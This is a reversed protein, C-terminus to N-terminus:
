TKGNGVSELVRLTDQACRKWTFSCARARGAEILQHRLEDDTAVRYIGDAISDVREPDVLIAADGALERPAHRNATVVPTGSAMGEVVPLGFGEYLSPLLVAEALAYFSPLTKRDIWGARVVWPSLGLREILKLEDTCLWRHEGAVVLAIGLRPGVMAYAQLLRGFNKPPYIQGCYLFFREPLRYARRTEELREPPIVERFSEDVGYYVTQVRNEEVGLYKVVHQRVTDSIAIIADAKHAYRPILYRHNLRDRWRSGWPMVYWDLGHIVFVTRSKAMLPLAYKPNFILDLQERKTAQQVAVQDWFFTSRAKLTVERVHSHHCYTGLWREDRYLLVFEHATELALLEHLLNQTYVLVGGGHQSLHRLMIGIRM